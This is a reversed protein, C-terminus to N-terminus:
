YISHIECKLEHFDSFLFFSLKVEGKEDDIQFTLTIIEAIRDSVITVTKGEPFM